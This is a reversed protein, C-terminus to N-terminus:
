DKTPNPLPNPLPNALREIIDELRKKAATEQSRGIFEQIIPHKPDSSEIVWREPNYEFCIWFSVTRKGM